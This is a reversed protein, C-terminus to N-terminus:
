AHVSPRTNKRNRILLLCVGAIGAVLLGTDEFVRFNLAAFFGILSWLVPIVLLWWRTVANMLLLIGFTFITTPCPLGFTPAGPYSHGALTGIVPYIVLGYLIFLIGTASYIDRAYPASVRAQRFGAVLFLLSQLIFLAGFVFAAPNIASFFLLHYVLGMWLWLFALTGYIVKGAFPRNALLIITTALAALYFLVQVPWVALNYHSFVGFFQASTFPTRM